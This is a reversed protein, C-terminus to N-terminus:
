GRLLGAPWFWEPALPPRSDKHPPRHRCGIRLGAAAPEAAATRAAARVTEVQQQTAGYRLALDFHRQACPECGERLYYLADDLEQGARSAGGAEEQGAM